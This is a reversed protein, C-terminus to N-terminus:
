LSQFWLLITRFESASFIGFELVKELLWWARGAMQAQTATESRIWKKQEKVFDKLKDYQMRDNCFSSMGEGFHVENGNEFFFLSFFKYYKMRYEGLAEIGQEYEALLDSSM